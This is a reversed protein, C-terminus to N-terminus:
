FIFKTVHTIFINKSLQIFVYEGEHVYNYIYQVYNALWRCWVLSCNAPLTIEDLVSLMVHHWFYFFPFYSILYKLFFLSLFCNFHCFNLYCWLSSHPCGNFGCLLLELLLLWCLSQLFCQALICPLYCPCLSPLGEQVRSMVCIQNTCSFCICLVSSKGSPPLCYRWSM